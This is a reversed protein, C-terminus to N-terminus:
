KAYYLTLFFFAFAGIFSGGMQASNAGNGFGSMVFLFGGLAASVVMMFGLGSAIRVGRSKSWVFSLGFVVASLIVLIIGEFAHWVLPFGLSQVQQLFGALTFPPVPQASTPAYFINVTDGFWGQVALIVLTLVVLIKFKRSTLGSKSKEEGTRSSVNKEKQM